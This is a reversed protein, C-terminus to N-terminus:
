VGLSVFFVDMFRSGPRGGLPYSEGSSLFSYVFEYIVSPELRLMNRHSNLLGGRRTVGAPFPIVSYLRILSCMSRDYM